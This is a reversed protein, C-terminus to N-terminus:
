FKIQIDLLTSFDIAQDKNVFIKKISKLDTTINTLTSTSFDVDKFDNNYFQSNLFSCEGVELHNTLVELFNSDDFNSNQFQSNKIKVNSFNIYRCLCNELKCDFLSVEILNTGVLKCSIFECRTFSVQTFELNSLDCNTLKCDIFELKKIKHKTFDVKEIECGDFIVENNTVNGDCYSIKVNNTINKTLAEIINVEDIIKIIPRKM